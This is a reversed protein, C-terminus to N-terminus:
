AGGANMVRGLDAEVAALIEARADAFTVSDPTNTNIWLDCYAKILVQVVIIKENRPTFPRGGGPQGQRQM